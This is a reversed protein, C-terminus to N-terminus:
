WYKSWNSYKAEVIQVSIEFSLMFFKQGFYSAVYYM